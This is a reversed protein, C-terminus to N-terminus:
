EEEPIEPSWEITGMLLVAESHTLTQLPVLTGDTIFTPEHEHEWKIAFQSGDLSYRLSQNNEEPVQSFDVKTVDLTSIIAFVDPLHSM